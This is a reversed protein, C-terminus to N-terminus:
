SCSFDKSLNTTKRSFRYMKYLFKQAVFFGLWVLDKLNKSMSWSISSSTSVRHLEENLPYSFAQCYSKFYRKIWYKTVIKKVITDIQDLNPSKKVELSQHMNKDGIKGKLIKLNSSNLDLRTFSSLKLITAYDQLEEYRVILSKNLMKEKALLSPGVIIDIEYDILGRFTNFFFEKYYSNLIDSPRRVIGVSPINFKHFYDLYLYNRPTKEVVVYNEDKAEDLLLECAFGFLRCDLESKFGNSANLATRYNSPSAFTNVDSSIIRQLLWTEDQTVVKNSSGLLRQLVTTGSRPLGFIFVLRRDKM